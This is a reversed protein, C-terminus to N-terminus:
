RDSFKPDNYPVSDTFHNQQIRFESDNVLRNKDLTNKFHSKCKKEKVHYTSFTATKIHYIDRKKRLMYFFFHNRSLQTLRARTSRFDWEIEM